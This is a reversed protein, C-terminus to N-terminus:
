KTCAAVLGVADLSLMCQSVFSEFYSNRDRQIMGKEKTLVDMEEAVKDSWSNVGVHFAYDCCAKADAIERWTEYAELLSKGPEAVVTNVPMCVSVCFGHSGHLVTQTIRLKAMKVCIDAQCLCVCVCVCLSLM